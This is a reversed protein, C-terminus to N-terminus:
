GRLEDRDRRRGPVRYRRHDGRGARVEARAAGAVAATGGGAGIQQVTTPQGTVTGAQGGGGFLYDRGNLTAAAAGLAAAALRGAPTTSGTVPNLRLVSATDKSRQNLGGLILLDSGHPLVAAQAVGSPLQYPAPVIRM